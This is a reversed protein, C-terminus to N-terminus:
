CKKSIDKKSKKTTKTLNEVKKVNKADNEVSMKPFAVNKVFLGDLFSTFVM